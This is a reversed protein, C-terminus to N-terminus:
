SERNHVPYNSRNKGYTFVSNTEGDDSKLILRPKLLTNAYPPLKTQYSGFLQQLKDRSVVYMQDDHGPV